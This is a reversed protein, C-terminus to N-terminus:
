KSNEMLQIRENLDACRNVAKRLQEKHENYADLLMNHSDIIRRLQSKDSIVAVVDDNGSKVEPFSRDEYWYEFVREKFLKNM